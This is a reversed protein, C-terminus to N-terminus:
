LLGSLRGVHPASTLVAIDHVLERGDPRCLVSCYRGIQEAIDTQGRREKVHYKAEGVIRLDQSALAFDPKVDMDPSERPHMTRGGSASPGTRKKLCSCFVEVTYITDQYAEMERLLGDRDPKQGSM